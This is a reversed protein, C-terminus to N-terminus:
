ESPSSALSRVEAYDVNGLVDEHWGRLRPSVLRADRVWAIPVARASRWLGDEVRNLDARQETVALARLLAGRPQLGYGLVLEAPMAEQQPYSATLRAFTGDPKSRSESVLVPGLGVNRWESYLIRAGARLAPDPPVAIRVEKRPLTRIAALARRLRAPKAREGGSFGYAAAGTAEPILQEYDGRAATDRYARQLGFGISNFVIVDLGLLTRARVATGLKPDATTAAIDGMPIPAEDLEGREFERVANRPAVRQFEVSLGERRVVVRRKSGSVLAFPGPLTRPAAGVVTLAYPFRRWPISLRVSLTDADASIRQARAFIWNAPAEPLHAVRRIAAAIAPASRCTFTWRRFGDSSTWGRCLGPVVAGSAPDVRLPTSYLARALTTEDRSAALAPDLPWGFSALGVRAV